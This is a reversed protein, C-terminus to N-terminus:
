KWKISCGISRKGEPVQEGKCMADVAARLEDGTVPLGSGPRSADLRGHYVLALNKDFLYIDPTCVAKYRRAVDQTEDYLYPFSNFKDKALAAMHTPGDQPYTAVDNSSIGVMGIGREKLDAGLRRLEAQVHIVYPCHNCVFVVLTGAKGRVERLSLARGALPEPLNFDPASSGLLLEQTSSTLVM